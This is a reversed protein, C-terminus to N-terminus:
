RSKPLLVWSGTYSSSLPTGINGLTLCSVGSIWIVEEPQDRRGLDPAADAQSNGFKDETRARGLEVDADVAHGKVKTIQVMEPGLVRVVHQVISILDGDKVLPLPKSLSGQDLLRGTSRVVNLNDVGLHGLWFAQLAM